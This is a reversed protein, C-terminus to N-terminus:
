EVNLPINWKGLIIDKRNKDNATDLTIPLVISDDESIKYKNKNVYTVELVDPFITDGIKLQYGTNNGHVHVVAHTKNIKELLSLIKGSGASKARVLNHYEFTIQDFQKLIKSTVTELFDWECGEVDMKLIMNKNEEHGNRKMYYGLTKLPTNEEDKGSIGEKFFHFEKRDYPLAEITHDYQWINYGLEAMINDWTVDNCIGFSYAIGADVFDNLMIYGGDGNGLGIRVLNYNEVKYIKLLEKLKKYYEIDVNLDASINYLGGAGYFGWTFNIDM